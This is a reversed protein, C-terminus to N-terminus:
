RRDHKGREYLRGIEFIALNIEERTLLSSHDIEDLTNSISHTKHLSELGKKIATQTLNTLGYVIYNIM